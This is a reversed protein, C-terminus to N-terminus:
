FGDYIWNLRKSKKKKRKNEEIELIIDQVKVGSQTAGSNPSTAATNANPDIKRKDTDKLKVLTQPGVASMTPTYGIAVNSGGYKSGGGEIDVLEGREEKEKWFQRKKATQIEEQRMRFIAAQAKNGSAKPNLFDFRM